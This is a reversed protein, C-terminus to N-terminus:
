ASSSVRKENKKSHVDEDNTHIAGKKRSRETKWLEKQMTHAISFSGADMIHADNLNFKSNDNLESDYMQLLNHM